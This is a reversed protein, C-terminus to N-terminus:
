TCYYQNKKTKKLEVVKIETYKMSKILRRKSETVM